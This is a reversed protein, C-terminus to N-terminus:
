AQSGILGAEERDFGVFAISPEFDHVSAVRAELLAAVVSADDDAGPNSVSDYYAGIM